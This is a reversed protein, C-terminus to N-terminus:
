IRLVNPSRPSTDFPPFEAGTTSGHGPFYDFPIEVVRLIMASRMQPPVGRTEVVAIRAPASVECCDRLATVVTGECQMAMHVHVQADHSSALCPGICALAPTVAWLFMVGAAVIRRTRKILMEKSCLSTRVEWNACFGRAM